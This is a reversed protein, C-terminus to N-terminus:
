GVNGRLRRYLRGDSAHCDPRWCRYKGQFDRVQRAEASITGDTADPKLQHLLARIDELTKLEGIDRDIGYGVALFGKALAENEDAADGSRVVWVSM